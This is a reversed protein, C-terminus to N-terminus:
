KSMYYLIKQWFLQIRDPSGTGKLLQLSMYVNTWPSECLRHINWMPKIIWQRYKSHKASPNDTCVANVQQLQFLNSSAREEEATTKGYLYNLYPTLDGFSIKAEKYLQIWQSLGRLEGVGVANPSRFSPAIPWGLYVVDRQLGRSRDVGGGGPLYWAIVDDEKRKWSPSEERQTAPVAQGHPSVPSPHSSSAPLVVAFFVPGRVRGISVNRVRVHLFLSQASDM